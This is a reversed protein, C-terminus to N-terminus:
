DVTLGNIKYQWPAWSGGTTGGSTGGTQSNDGQNNKGDLVQQETNTSGFQDLLNVNNTQGGTQDQGSGGEDSSGGPDINTDSGVGTNWGINGQNSLSPTATGSGPDVTLGIIRTGNVGLTGLSTTIKYDSFAPGKEVGATIKGYALHNRTVVRQGSQRFRDVRFRSVRDVTIQSNDAFAMKVKGGFGTRIEAGEQYEDGVKVARWPNQPGERVEATGAVSLVKVTLLGPTAPKAPEVAAETPKAEVPKTEAPKAAAEETPAPSAEYQGLAVAWSLSIILGCLAIQKSM